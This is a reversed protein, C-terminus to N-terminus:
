QNKKFHEVQPPTDQITNTMTLVGSNDLALRTTYPEVLSMDRVISIGNADCSATYTKGTEGINNGEHQVGDPIFAVTYSDSDSDNYKLIIHSADESITFTEYVAYQDITTYNGVFKACDEFSAFASVPLALLVLGLITKLKM